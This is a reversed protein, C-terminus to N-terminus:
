EKVQFAATLVRGDVFHIEVREVQNLPPFGLRARIEDDKPEYEPDNAVRWATTPNVGYFEGVARWSGLAGHQRAIEEKIANRDTVHFSADM